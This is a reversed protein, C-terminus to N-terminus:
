YMLFVKAWYSQQYFYWVRAAYNQLYRYKLIVLDLYNM